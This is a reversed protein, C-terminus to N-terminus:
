KRKNNVRLGKKIVDSIQFYQLIPTIFSFETRMEEQEKDIRQKEEIEKETRSRIIM